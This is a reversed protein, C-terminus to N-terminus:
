FVTRSDLSNYMRDPLRLINMRTDFHTLNSHLRAPCFHPQLANRIRYTSTFLLTDLTLLTHRTSEATATCTFHARSVHRIRSRRRSCKTKLVALNIHLPQKPKKKKAENDVIRFFLIGRIFFPRDFRTLKSIVKM